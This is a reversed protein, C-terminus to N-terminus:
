SLGSKEATRITHDSESKFDHDAEFHYDLGDFRNCTDILEEIHRLATQDLTNNAKVKQQM